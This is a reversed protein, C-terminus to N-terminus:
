LTSNKETFLQLAKEDNKGLKYPNVTSTSGIILKGSNKENSM